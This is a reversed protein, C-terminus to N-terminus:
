TINGHTIGVHPVSRVGLWAWIQLQSSGLKESEQNGTSPASLNLAQMLPHVQDLPPSLPPQLINGFPFQSMFTRTAFKQCSYMSVLVHFNQNCVKSVLVKMNQNIEGKIEGKMNEVLVKMNHCSLHSCMCVGVHQTQKASKITLCISVQTQGSHGVGPLVSSCPTCGPM